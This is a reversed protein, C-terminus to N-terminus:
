YQDYSSGNGIFAQYQQWVANGNVLTGIFAQYAENGIYVIAGLKATISIVVNSRVTLNYPLSATSIDINNVTATLLQYAGSITYNIKIVDNYYLKDGNKLAGISGGGIPSSTRNVSISVGNSSYSLSLTYSILTATSVVSVNGGVTYNGSDWTTNNVTHTKIAYGTNASISISLIDFHYITAGNSLATGNRKVTITTGNGRSISLTYSKLEWIAYLTIDKTPTYNGTVGTSASSSTAWGKFNYGTRAPTPLTVSATTTTSSWQAYLTAASNASYTGGPSYSTGSGNAATNWSSFTYSTTRAASAASPNTGGSYNIRYTVTYSGASSNSRTPRTSSLTLNVGYTKTQSSPANSGGNANYSITYTKIKWVAYLTAGENATYTGGASYTATTATSSKSWGLFNYGTKTPITSSLTLDVGYTKTQASPAGSGGNANYSITYTKIKWVAYLTASANATYTGGASYTASTATSSTAWGLFNYGTRTPITSSLTLDVGYTKTQSSPAGSGGNANYSITYTKLRWVAYLTASANATYTGGASYTATTATSSTSWGLFDYGTRTPKTSSLTLNVGYNKTQASPAGSGGNANYSITYTILRWVAYLMIGANATYTGGAPYTAATATSSASWGLFNYGTRTPKTSSLTLNVNYTKIQDSPAGSGGNANYRVWWANLAFYRYVTENGDVTITSSSGTYHYGTYYADYTTSSGFSAGSVSSGYTYSKTKTGLLTGSASGVRDQCTVTYSNIKWVAFLALSSTRTGINQGASYTATTAAGSTSWGLFTYGARTPKTSSLVVDETSGYFYTNSPAGSGGNANYDIVLSRSESLNIYYGDDIWSTYAGSYDNMSLVGGRLGMKISAAGSNNHTVTLTPFANGQEFLGVWEEYPNSYTKLYNGRGYDASFAYILSGDRYVGGNNDKSNFMRLDNGVNVTTYIQPYFTVTSTNTSPDYSSSWSFRTEFYFDGDDRPHSNTYGSAM